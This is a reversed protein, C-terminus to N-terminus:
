ILLLKLYKFLNFPIFVNMLFQKICVSQVNTQFLLDHADLITQGGFNRIFIYLYIFIHHDVESLFCLELVSKLKRMINM